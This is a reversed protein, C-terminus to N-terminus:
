RSVASYKGVVKINKGYSYVNALLNGDVFWGDFTFGEYEPIVIGSVDIIADRYFPLYIADLEQQTEPNIIVFAASYQPQRIRFEFTESYATYNTSEALIIKVTYDGAAKPLTTLLTNNQYYEVVASDRQEYNTLFALSKEEGDYLPMRDQDNVGIVPTAKTITLVASLTLDKYGNQSVTVTQTYVGADIKEESIQVEADPYKDLGSVTVNHGAQDYVLTVDQVTIGEFENGGCGCVLTLSIVSLSLAVFVTICKKLKCIFTRM